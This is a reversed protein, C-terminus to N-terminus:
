GNKIIEKLIEDQLRYVSFVGTSYNNFLLSFSYIKGSSAHVYGTLGIVGSIYGTKAYVQRAYPAQNLRRRLRSDPEGTYPMTSIFEGRYPTKWMYNLLTVFAHASARNFRSMGSGDIQQHEAPPVRLRNNLWETIAASGAEWSGNKKVEAGVAKILQEAYHNQSKKNIVINVVSLPTKHQTVMRWDPRADRSRMLVRGRLVIGSRTFTDHAVNAFYHIPNMVTVFVETPGLRPPANGRVVIVNTNPKRAIFVGRGRGTVCSNEITVYRNPPEVQVIARRGPKSPLVRIMVCGEQMSLAAVPAEYWNVLQDAPWSPHVYENDFYGHELILDGAITKIGARQLASAWEEIVATARGDHFRGGITPDGGGSIKVDGLLTGTADISGRVSVTTTFEYDKGLLDLAAATTFLKMNSAPAIPMHGNHEAVVRGSEVEAIVVSSISSAAIPGHLLSDLRQELTTGVAVPQPPPAPRKRAARSRTSRKPTGKRTQAELSSSPLLLAVLSVITLIKRAFVRM